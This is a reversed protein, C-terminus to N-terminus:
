AQELPFEVKCSVGEAAFELDVTGGLEHPVLERILRTGYGSKAEVAIRPAGFERWAFVLNAPHGNPKREWSVTVRGTPVSLAGYKAANTVLEHLVMGMAEIAAATLLVDTGSIAINADAAYPALQSRVLAQLGVGQWGKQSLLAHAVAMAHIRGDLSRSFEAISNSRNRSFMAVMAVRALVNKVRHDLEAMLMKEREAARKRGTIDRSIASAGVFKGEANVVPSIMLSVDVSSGDKRQRVTEYDEIREGRKIRELIMLQEHHRDPPILITIPRGIVEDSTYGYLREAANNWTTIVRRADTSVIPDHSSEVISALWRLHQESERLAAEVQSREILDAAQRALVDQSRLAWETPEHPERWHTSIMGLLRGSRSVLPTSHMARIGARRSVDLDASGAMFDSCEIDPVIVRRGVSLAMGCSTASHRNVQKWVAVSEPRFGRSTLLQLQDHEPDYKQMSGMDASMLSIAADLVREYLADLNDEQILLTSIEQLRLSADGGADARAPGDLKQRRDSMAASSGSLSEAFAYSRALVLWGEELDLFSTKLAPDAAAEAKQRADAAREHARVQESLQQLM